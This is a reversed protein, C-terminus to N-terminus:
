DKRERGSGSHLKMIDIEDYTTRHVMEAPKGLKEGIYDVVLQYHRVASVPTIMSAVGARIKEDSAYASTSPFLVTVLFLLLAQQLSMFDENDNLKFFHAV